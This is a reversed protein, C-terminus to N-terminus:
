YVVPSHSDFYRPIQIRRLNLQGDGHRENRQEHVMFRGPDPGHFIWPDTSDSEHGHKHHEDNHGTASLHSPFSRVIEYKQGHESRSLPQHQSDHGGRVIGILYSPINFQFGSHHSVFQYDHGCTRLATPIVHAM